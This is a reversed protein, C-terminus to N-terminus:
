HKNMKWYVNKRFLFISIARNKEFANIFTTLAIEAELRALPAGLCFHPGKGFTLHKKMEQEIYMLNLPKHFNKKEDLNAASVWAVIMQNKKM